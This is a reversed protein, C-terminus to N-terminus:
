HRTGADARANRAPAGSPAASPPAVVTASPTGVAAPTATPNPIATASMTPTPSPAAPTVTATPPETAGGSSPTSAARVDGMHTEREANSSNEDQTCAGLAGAAVAAFAVSLLARMGVGKVAGAGLFRAIM